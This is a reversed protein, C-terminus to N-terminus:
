PPRRWSIPPPPPPPPPVPGPLPQARSLPLHPPPLPPPLSIDSSSSSANSGFRKRVSQGMKDCIARTGSFLFPWMVRLRSPEVISGDDDECRLKEVEDVWVEYLGFPLRRFWGGIVDRKRVEVDGSFPFKRQRYARRRDDWFREAPKISAALGWAVLGSLTAALVFYGVHMTGTGFQEFNMGFFSTAFSLPIFVIGVVTISGM